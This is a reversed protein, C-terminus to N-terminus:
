LGDNRHSLWKRYKMKYGSCSDRDKAIFDIGGDYPAVITNTAISVFWLRLNDLAIDKLIADFRDASWRTECYRPRYVQGQEYDESRLEYLDIEELPHFSFRNISDVQVETEVASDKESHYSGTLIIVQADDGLIDTIIGNHRRLLISWEEENEPYRKSATLSHIRFWRDPYEHRLLHAAPILKAYDRIKDAGAIETTVLPM